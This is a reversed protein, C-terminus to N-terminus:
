ISQVVETVCLNRQLKLLLDGSDLEDIGKPSHKPSLQEDHQNLCGITLRIPQMQGTSTRQMSGAAILQAAFAADGGVTQGNVELVAIAANKDGAVDPLAHSAPSGPLVKAIVVHGKHKGLEVGIRPKGAMKFVSIIRMDVVEANKQTPKARRFSLNRVLNLKSVSRLAQQHEGDDSRVKRQRPTLSSFDM